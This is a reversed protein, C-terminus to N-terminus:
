TPVLGEQATVSLFQIIPIIVSHLRAKASTMRTVKTMAIQSATSSPTCSKREQAHTIASWSRSLPKLKAAQAPMPLKQIRKAFYFILLVLDTM